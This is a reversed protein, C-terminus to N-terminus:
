RGGARGTKERGGPDAASGHGLNRQMKVHPHRERHPESLPFGPRGGPAAGFPLAARAGRAAGPGGIAEDASFNRGARQM